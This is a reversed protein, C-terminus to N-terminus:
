SALMDLVDAASVSRDESAPDARQAEPRGALFGLTTGVARSGDPKLVNTTVRVFNTGDWAFLTATGGALEKVHDVMAFNLVQSQKGLHLDPVMRAGISVSGALSPAGILRSQDELLRMANEVQQRSLQDITAIHSIAESSQRAADQAANRHIWVSAINWAIGGCLLCAIFVVTLTLFALRFGLSSRNM